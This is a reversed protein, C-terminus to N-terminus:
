NEHFVFWQELASQWVTGSRGAKQAAKSKSNALKVISAGLGTPPNPTRHWIVDAAKKPTDKVLVIQGVERGGNDLIHAHAPSDNNGFKGHDDSRVEITIGFGRFRAMEVLAQQNEKLIIM